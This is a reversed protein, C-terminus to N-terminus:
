AAAKTLAVAGIAADALSISVLEIEVRRSESEVVVTRAGSDCGAEIGSPPVSLGSGLAKLCAEKRTWAQLFVRERGAAPAREWQELEGPTFHRRALADAEVVPQLVEVDVGIPRGDSIGILCEHASHSLSFELGHAQLLHPKGHADAAFALARSERGLALGLVHRLAHHAALYRRRDDEFLFRAARRREDASLIAAAADFRHQDLDVRWIEVKGPLDHPVPEIRGGAM